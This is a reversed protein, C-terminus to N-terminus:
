SALVTSERIILECNLVREIRKDREDGAIRRLLM